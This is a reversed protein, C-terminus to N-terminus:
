TSEPQGRDRSISLSRESRTRTAMRSSGYCMAWSLGLFFTPGFRHYVTFNVAFVLVLLLATGFMRDRATRIRPWTSIALAVFIIGLPLAVIVGGSAVIELWTNHLASQGGEARAHGFGVGALPNRSIIELGENLMGWRRVVSSESPLSGPDTIFRTIQAFRDGALVLMAAIVVAAGALLKPLSRRWSTAIWPDLHREYLRWLFVIAICLAGTISQTLIVIGILLVRLAIRGRSVTAEAGNAYTLVLALAATLAFFNADRYIAEVRSDMGEHIIAAYSVLVFTIIAMQLARDVVAWECCRVFEAFAAGACLGLVGMGLFFLADGSGNFVADSFAAGIMLGVCVSCFWFIHGGTRGRLMSAAVYVLVIAMLVPALLPLTVHAPETHHLM